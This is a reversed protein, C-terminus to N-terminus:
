TTSVKQGVVSAITETIIFLCIWIVILLAVGYGLDVISGGIISYFIYNGCIIVSFMAVIAMKIPRREVVYHLSLTAMVVLPFLIWLVFPAYFQAIFGIFLVVSLLSIVLLVKAFIKIAVM